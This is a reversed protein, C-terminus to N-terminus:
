NFFVVPERGRQSGCGSHGGNSQSESPPLSHRDALGETPKSQHRVITWAFLGILVLIM